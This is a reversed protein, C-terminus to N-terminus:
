TPTWSRRMSPWARSWVASTNRRNKMPPTPMFAANRRGPPLIRGPFLQQDLFEQIPLDTFSLEYALHTAIERATNRTM